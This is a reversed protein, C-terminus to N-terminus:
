FIYFYAMVTALEYDSEYIHIVFVFMLRLEMHDSFIEDLYEMSLNYYHATYHTQYTYMVCYAHVIM